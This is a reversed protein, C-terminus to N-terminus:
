VYVYTKTEYSPVIRDKTLTWKHLAHTREITKGKNLLIRLSNHNSNMNKDYNIAESKPSMTMVSM